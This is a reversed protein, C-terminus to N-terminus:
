NEDGSYLVVRVDHLSTVPVTLSSDVVLWEHSDGRLADGNCRALVYRKDGPGEGLNLRASIVMADQLFRPEKAVCNTCM